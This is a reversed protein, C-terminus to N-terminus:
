TPTLILPVRPSISGRLVTGKLLAMLLTLCPGGKLTEGIIGLIITPAETALIRNQPLVRWDLDFGLLCDVTGRDPKHNLSPMQFEIRSSGVRRCPGATRAHLPHRISPDVPVIGLLCGAYVSLCLGLPGSSM